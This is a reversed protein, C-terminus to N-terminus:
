IFIGRTIKLLVYAVRGFSRCLFVRKFAERKESKSVSILYILM